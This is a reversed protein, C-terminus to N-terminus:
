SYLATSKGGVSALWYPLIESTLCHPWVGNILVRSLLLMLSAAPAKIPRRTPRFNVKVGFTNSRVIFWLPTLVSTLGM